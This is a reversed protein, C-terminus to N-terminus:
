SEGVFYNEHNTLGRRRLLKEAPSGPPAGINFRAAGARRAWARMHDLMRIFWERKQRASPWHPHMHWLLEQAILTADDWMFPVLEVLCAGAVTGDLDVVSMDAGPYEIANAVVRVIRPINVGCGYRGSFDMQRDAALIIGVISALDAFTANRIM